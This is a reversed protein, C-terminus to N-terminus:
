KVENMVPSALPQRSIEAWMALIAVRWLFFAEVREIATGNRYLNDRAANLSERNVLRWRDALGPGTLDLVRERQDVLGAIFPGTFDFKDRRKLTMEPLDGTYARRLIYRSMGDRLKWESPLSLSFEVLDVDLFPHRAEVGVAAACGSFIDLAIAQLPINLAEEQVMREDHAGSESAKRINQRDSGLNSLAQESLFAIVADSENSYFRNALGIFPRLRRIHSLYRMFIRIRSDGFMDSAAVSERWLTRWQRTKALENLRGFGYSVVEDGGHGSLVISAGEAKAAKLLNFSVSHGRSMCPGDVAQLWFEMDMLPDHRDSPVEIPSLGTMNAVAWLHQDDCWGKTEKYTLSLALLPSNRLLAASAAIASSDMGGSLMLATQEPVTCNKVSQDLLSRFQEAPAVPEHQRPVSALSWYREQREGNRGYVAWSAIPFREVGQFYTRKREIHVGTVADALMLLDDSPAKSLMSRVAQSSRGFFLAGEEHCIFLPALGFHDRAAYISQSQSDHLVFAFTGRLNKALDTGWKRWGAIM